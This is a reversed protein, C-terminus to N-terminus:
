ILFAHLLIRIPVAGPPSADPDGHLAPQLAGNPLCLVASECPGRVIAAALGAIQLDATCHALCRNTAFPEHGVTNVDCECTQESETVVVQSLARRDMECVAAALSAQAFTTAALLSLAIWRKLRSSTYM